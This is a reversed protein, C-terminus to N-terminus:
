SIKIKLIIIVTIAAMCLIGFIGARWLHNNSLQKKKNMNRRGGIWLLLFPITLVFGYGYFTTPHYLDDMADRILGFFFYDLVVSLLLFIVSNYLAAKGITEDPYTSLCYYSAYCWLVPAVTLMLVMGLTPNVSWPFWLLLNSAWYVAFGVIVNFLLWHRM